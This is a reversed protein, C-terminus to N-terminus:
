HCAIWTSEVRLRSRPWSPLGATLTDKARPDLIIRTAPAVPPDAAALLSPFTIWADTPATKVDDPTAPTRKARPPKGSPRGM